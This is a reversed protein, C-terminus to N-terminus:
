AIAFIARFFIKKPAEVSEFGRFVKKKPSNKCNSLNRSVAITVYENWKYERLECWKMWHKMGKVPQHVWYIPWGGTYPDEYSLQSLVAAGVCLGRTRNGNFGQFLNKKKKPSNECNSLNRSVAITVYENWLLYVRTDYQCLASRANWFAWSICVSLM